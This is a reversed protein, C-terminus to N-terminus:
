AEGEGAPLYLTFRCGRPARNEAAIWGGHDRAIGDSVSLGLGTGEGVDKTTFFPEFVRLLNEPAIGAGEDEVAITVWRRAAGGAEAPAERAAEAVAVEVRGGGPMAQVANLLLNCLVQQIQLADVSAVQAREARLAVEVDAKRTVPALLAVARAAVDRLDVPARDVTRRRAFDLLRRIMATMRRVQDAIARAGEAVEEPSADGEALFGASALVVNLPTGLEHALGSALQGLTRLREGHRLQEQAALSARHQREVAEQAAALRECMANVEDALERIEDDQRLVLPRTLDGEGVRRAKERLRRIPEGVFRMSVSAVLANLLVLSVLWSATNRVLSERFYRRQRALPEAVTLTRASGDPARLPLCTVFEEGRGEACPGAPVVRVRVHPYAGDAVRLMADAAAEGDRRAVDRWAAALTRGVFAHDRAMDATFEARERRVRLVGNTVGIAGAVAAVGLLLKTVVKM